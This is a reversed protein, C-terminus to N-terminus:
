IWHRITYLKSLNLQKSLNKMKDGLTNKGLPAKDFWIDVTKNEIPKPRQWFYDCDPHLVSLYKVFSKGPCMPNSPMVYLRGGQSGNDDKSDGRHNKAKPSLIFFKDLCNFRLLSYVIRLRRAVVMVKSSLLPKSALCM